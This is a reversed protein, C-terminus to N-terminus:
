ERKHEQWWRKAREFLKCLWEVVTVSDAALAAVGLSVLIEWNPM